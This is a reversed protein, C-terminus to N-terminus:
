RYDYPRHPVPEEFPLASDNRGRRTQRMANVLLGWGLAPIPWFVSKSVLVLLVCVANVSFTLIWIPTQIRRFVVQYMSAFFAGISLGLYALFGFLGFNVWASLANHAYSGSDGFHRAHGAFLGLFPNSSIQQVAVEQMRAREIWSRDAALDLVALQRAGAISEFTFALVLVIAATGLLLLLWYKLHRLSLAFLLFVTVLIFAYLESRAGLLFLAFMGTALLLGTALMSSSTAILFLLIMLVSRAFGLYDAIGEYDDGVYLMRATLTLEGSVIFMYTLAAFIAAFGTALIVRLVGSGVPLMAGVFFLALWQAVIAMSQRAGDLVAASSDLAYSFATWLTVYTLFLIVSLSYAPAQRALERVVVPFLLFFSITLILSVPGYLGGAFRPILTLALLSHYIFFGLFLVVYGAGALGNAVTKGYQNLSINL